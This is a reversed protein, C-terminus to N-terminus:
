MSLVLMKEIQMDRITHQIGGVGLGSQKLGAFPMNDVRFASHDNVMVASANLHKYCHLATDLQATFVAAQFSYPLANAREIADDLSQYTYVCVVPGFIESQSVLSETDPNLLITPAYCQEGITSGGTILEAGEEIAEKVWSDVRSVEAQRILPGVDTEMLTPDGVKLREASETFLTIFDNVIAEHVYVRQVSVCVQGAHYFGGKTISGVAASLDSSDNVIVPAAGGHELSCRTGPALKSRLSWGVKASGIFSFFSVRSDTVLAEAVERNQTIVCQCWVAPLGAEILLDVFSQCSLPTDNAPKVLVPCGAAVASAVQHVILNLPHNFASVAVVVGIPEVQTMAMKKQAAATGNLPIVHGAETRITEIALRLGDVARTAEVHADKLPKGGEQAIQMALTDHQQEMLKATRELIGVREHVPLWQKRDQYAALANDLKESVSQWDLTNMIGLEDQNYPSHIKLQTSSM